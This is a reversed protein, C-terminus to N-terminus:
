ALTQKTKDQTTHTQKSTWRRGHPVSVGLGGDRRDATGQSLLSGRGHRGDADVGLALRALEDELAQEGVEGGGGLALYADDHCLRQHTLLFIFM